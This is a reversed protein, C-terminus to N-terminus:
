EKSDTVTSPKNSIETLTNFITALASQMVLTFFIFFLFTVPFNKYSLVYDGFGISSTSIFWFYFCEYISWGQVAQTAWTAILMEVIFLFITTGIIKMKKRHITTRKMLRREAVMLLKEIHFRKMDGAASLALLYLPITIVGYLICLAKGLNTKPAVDGYGLVLYFCSM